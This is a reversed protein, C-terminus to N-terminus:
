STLPINRRRTKMEEQKKHLQEPTSSTPIGAALCNNKHTYSYGNTTKKKDLPSNIKPKKHIVEIEKEYIKFNQILNIEENSSHNGSSLSTSSITNMSKENNIREKNLVNIEKNNDNNVIRLDQVVTKYNQLDKKLDVLLYRLQLNEDTLEKITVDNNSNELEPKIEFVDEYKYDHFEDHYIPNNDEDYTMLSEREVIKKVDENHKSTINHVKNKIDNLEISLLNKVSKQAEILTKLKENKEDTDDAESINNELTSLYTSKKELYSIGKIKSECKISSKLEIIENKLKKSENTLSENKELENSSFTYYDIIDNQEKLIENLALARASPKDIKLANNIHKNIDNKLNQVTSSIKFSRKTLNNELSTIKTINSTVESKLNKESKKVKEFPTQQNNSKFINVFNKLNTNKVRKITAVYEKTIMMLLNEKALMNIINKILPQPPTKM